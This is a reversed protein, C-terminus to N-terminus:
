VGSCLCHEWKWNVKWWLFCSACYWLGVHSNRHDWQSCLAWWSSCLPLEIVICLLLSFISTPALSLKCSGAPLIHSCLLFNCELKLCSHSGRPNALTVSNVEAPYLQFSTKNNSHTSFLPLSLSPPFVVLNGVRASRRGGFPCGLCSTM